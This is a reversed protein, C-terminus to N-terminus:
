TIWVPAKITCDLIPLDMKQGVKRAEQLVEESNTSAVFPIRYDQPGRLFARYITSVFKSSTGRSGLVQSYQQKTITIKELDPVQQWKGFKLGWVGFYEQLKVDSFDIRTGRFSWGLVIGLLMLLPTWIWNGQVLLLGSFALLLYGFWRFQMPFYWEIRHDLMIYIVLIQHLKETKLM